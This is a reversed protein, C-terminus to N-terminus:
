PNTISLTKVEEMNANKRKRRGVKINDTKM